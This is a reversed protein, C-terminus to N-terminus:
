WAVFPDHRDHVEQLVALEAAAATEEERRRAVARKRIASAVAQSLVLDDSLKQMSIGRHFTQICAFLQTEEERRRAVARKRIASAVAQAWCFVEDRLDSEARADIVHRPRALGCSGPIIIVFMKKQSWLHRRTVVSAPPGFCRVLRVELGGATEEEAAEHEEGERVDALIRRYPESTSGLLSDKSVDIRYGHKNSYISGDARLFLGEGLDIDQPISEEEVEEEEEEEEEEEDDDEDDSSASTSSADSPSDSEKGDEYEGLSEVAM